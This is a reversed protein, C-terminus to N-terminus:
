LCSGPQAWAWNPKQKSWPTISFCGQLLDAFLTLAGARGMGQELALLHQKPTSPDRLIECPHEKPVRDWKRWWTLKTHGEQGVPLHWWKHTRRAKLTAKSMLPAETVAAHSSGSTVTPQEAGHTCGEVRGPWGVAPRSSSSGAPMLLCALGILAM